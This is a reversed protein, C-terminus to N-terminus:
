SRVKKVEYVFAHKDLQMKKKKEDCWAKTFAAGYYFIFSCYFVFLLILVFAGTKGFLESLSKFTLLLGLILKGITFLVGTFTGGIFATPWDPHANALYKFLITFWGSAVVVFILQSVLKFLFSNYDSWTAHIYDKLLLQLATAILQAVLVIGAFCIILTSKLRSRLYFKVGPSEEVEINWLENISTSVVHFLTTVVFILFIFGAIMGFWNHTFHQFQNLINYVKVSSEKGIVGILQTFINQKVANPNYFISILEILILVLAPLAFTTFFATAAAMRLPSKHVIGRFAKGTITKLQTLNM